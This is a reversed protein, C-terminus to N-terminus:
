KLFIDFALSLKHEEEEEEEEDCWKQGPLKKAVVISVLMLLIGSCGSHGMSEVKPLNTSITDWILPDFGGFVVSFPSSYANKLLFRLVNLPM